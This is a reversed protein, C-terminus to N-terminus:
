GLGDVKFPLRHSGITELLEHYTENECEHHGIFRLISKLSKIFVILPRCELVSLFWISILGKTGCAQFSARHDVVCLQLALIRAESLRHRIVWLALIDAKEEKNTSIKAVLPSLEHDPCQNVRSHLTALTLESWKPQAIM